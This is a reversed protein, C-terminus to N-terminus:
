FRAWWDTKKKNRINTNASATTIDINESNDDFSSRDDGLIMIKIVESGKSTIEIKDGICRILGEKSLKDIEFDQVNKPKAYVRQNSSASKQQEKWFNFLKEAAKSDVLNDKSLRQKLRPMRKVLFDVLNQDFKRQQEKKM